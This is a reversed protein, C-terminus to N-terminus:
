LVAHRSAAAVKRAQWFLASAEELASRCARSVQSIAQLDGMDCALLSSKTLVLLVDELLQQQPGSM